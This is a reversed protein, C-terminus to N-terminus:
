RRLETICEFPSLVDVGLQDLDRVNPTVVTLGRVVTTAAIMADEMLTYFRCHKVM